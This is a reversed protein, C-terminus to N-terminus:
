PASLFGLEAPPYPNRAIYRRLGALTKYPTDVIMLNTLWAPTPGGPDIHGESIVELMGNGKPTLIWRTVANKLRVAKRTEPVLDSDIATAVMTVAGTDPDRSWVVDTIADRDKAPWPVNNYNYVKFRTESTTEVVRAEKCLEAWESCAATDRILSVVSGLNLEETMVARVEKYKSGAVRRTMVKIGVKNRKLEWEAEGAAADKAADKAAEQEGSQESDQALVALQPATLFIGLVLACVLVTRRM